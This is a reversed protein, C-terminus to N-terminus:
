RGPRRGLIQAMAGDARGATRGVVVARFRDSILAPEAVFGRKVARWMSPLAAPLDDIEAAETSPM